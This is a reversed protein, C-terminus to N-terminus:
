GAILMGGCHQGICRCSEDFGEAVDFCQDVRIKCCLRNRRQGQLPDIQFVHFGAQGMCKGNAQTALGAQPHKACCQPIRIPGNDFCDEVRVLGVSM